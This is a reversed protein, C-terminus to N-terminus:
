RWSGQTLSFKKLLICFLYLPPFYWIHSNFNIVRPAAFPAIFLIFLYLWLRPSYIQFAYLKWFILIWLQLPFFCILLFFFGLIFISLEYFHFGNAWLSLLYEINNMIPSLFHCSVTRHLDCGHSHPCFAFIFMIVKSPLSGVTTFINM